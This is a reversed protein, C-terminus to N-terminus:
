LPPEISIESNFDSFLFVWTPAPEGPETIIVQRLHYSGQEMWLDVTVTEPLDTAFDSLAIGPLTGRLHITPIEGLTEDPLRELSDTQALLAGIGVEPDFMLDVDTQMSPPAEEWQGNLPNTLWQQEGIAVFAVNTSGFPTQILTEAQMRDPAVVDGEVTSFALTGGEDLEIRRETLALSFHFSSTQNWTTVARDLLEQPTPTPTPPVPTATPTPPEESGCAALLALLVVVLLAAVLRPLPSRAPASSTSSASPLPNRPTM